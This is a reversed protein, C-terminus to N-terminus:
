ENRDPDVMGGSVKKGDKYEYQMDLKQDANYHNYMGHQVGDKYNIEEMVRGNNYYRIVKGDIDGHKYPITEIPRGFKYTTNPGDFKGDNYFVKKTVQGRKDLELSLGEVRGDIYNEIKIIRGEDNFALWTGSKIGNLVFGEEALNGNGDIRVARQFDSDAVPIMEFGAWDGKDVAQNNKDGVCATFLLSAQLVLALAYFRNRM